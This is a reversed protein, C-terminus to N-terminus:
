RVERECDIYSIRMWHPIEYFNQVGDSKSDVLFLPVTEIIPRSLSIFDLGFGNDVMRQKTIQSLNHKVKFIGNGASIMVISNNTKQLDRDMFHKNLINLSTNIAELFNGHVADSPVSGSPFETKNSSNSNSSSCTSSSSSSSSSSSRSNNNSNTGNTVNNDLNINNSSSRNSLNGSSSSSSSSSGSSSSSSSSSSTSSGGTSSTSNSSLNWGVTKPYNWFEDRLQKVLATKDAKEIDAM